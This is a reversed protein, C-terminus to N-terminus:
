RHIVKFPIVGSCPGSTINHSKPSVDAKRRDRDNTRAPFNGFVPGQRAVVEYPCAGIWGGAM